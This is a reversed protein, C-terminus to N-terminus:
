VMRHVMPCGGGKRVASSGDPLRVWDVLGIMGYRGAPPHTELVVANKEADMEIPGAANRGDAKPLPRLPWVSCRNGCDRGYGTQGRGAAGTEAISGAGPRDYASVRRKSLRGCCHAGM